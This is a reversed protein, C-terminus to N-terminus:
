VNDILGLDHAVFLRLRDLTKNVSPCDSTAFLILDGSKASCLMLFREKKEPNLSSVLAPIGELEGETLYVGSLQYFMGRFSVIKKKM